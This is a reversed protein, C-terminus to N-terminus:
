GVVIASKPSYPCFKRYSAQVSIAAKERRLFSPACFHLSILANLSSRTFPISGGYEAQFAIRCLM